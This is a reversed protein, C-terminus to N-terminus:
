SEWILKMSESRSVAGVWNLGPTSTFRYAIEEKREVLTGQFKDGALNLTISSIEKRVEDFADLLEEIMWGEAFKGTYIISYNQIEFSPIKDIDAVTPPLVIIKEPNLNYTKSLMDKMDNTQVFIRLCTNRIGNFMKEDEESINYHDFDTVYPIVKKGY